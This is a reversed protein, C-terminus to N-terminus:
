RRILSRTLRGDGARSHRNRITVLVAPARDRNESRLRLLGHDIRGPPRRSPGCPCARRRAWTRPIRRHRPNGRCRSRTFTSTCECLSERSRPTPGAHSMSPVLGPAPSIQPMRRPPMSVCGRVRVGPVGTTRTRGQENVVVLTVRAHCTAVTTSCIARRSRCTYRLALSFYANPRTATRTFRVRVLCYVVWRFSGSYPDGLCLNWYVWRKYM